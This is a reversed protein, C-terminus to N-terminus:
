WVLLARLIVFKADLVYLPRYEGADSDPDYVFFRETGARILYVSRGSGSVGAAEDLAGGAKTCDKGTTVLSVQAASVNTLELARRLADDAPETSELLKQVYDIVRVSTSDAVRCGTPPARLVPSSSEGAMFSLLILISHLM